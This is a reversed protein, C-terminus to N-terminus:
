KIDNLQKAQNTIECLAIKAKKFFKRRFETNEMMHEGIENNEECYFRFFRGLCSTQNNNENEDVDMTEDDDDEQIKTKTIVTLKPKERRGALKSPQKVKDIDLAVLIPSKDKFTCLDDFSEKNMMLKLKSFLLREKGKLKINPKSKKKLIPEPVPSFKDLHSTPM